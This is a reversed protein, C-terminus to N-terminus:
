EGMIEELSAVVSMRIIDFEQPEDFTALQETADKYTRYWYCDLLNYEQGGDGDDYYHEEKHRIVYYCDSKQIVGYIRHKM